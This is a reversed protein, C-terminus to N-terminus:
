SLVHEVRSCWSKVARRTAGRLRANTEAPKPQAKKDDFSWFGFVCFLKAAGYGFALRTQWPQIHDVSLKLKTM